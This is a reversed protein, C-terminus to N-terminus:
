IHSCYYCCHSMFVLLVNIMDKWGEIMNSDFAQAEDLYMRWVRADPGLAENIDDPPYKYKQEYDDPQLYVPALRNKPMGFYRGKTRKNAHAESVTLIPENDIESDSSTDQPLGAHRGGDIESDCVVREDASNDQPPGADLGSPGPNDAESTSM